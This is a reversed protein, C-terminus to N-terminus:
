GSLRLSINWSICLATLHPRNDPETGSGLFESGTLRRLFAPPEEGPTLGQKCNRYDPKKEPIAPCLAPLKIRRRIFLLLCDSGYEFSQVLTKRPSVLFTDHAAAKNDKSVLIYNSSEEAASKYLTTYGSMLSTAPRTRSYPALSKKKRMTRARRFTYSAPSGRILVV